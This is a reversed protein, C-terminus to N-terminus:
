VLFHLKNRLDSKEKAPLFTIAQGWKFIVFKGRFCKRVVPPLLNEQTCFIYTEAEKAM